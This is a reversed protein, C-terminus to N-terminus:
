MVSYDKLVVNGTTGRRHEAYVLAAIVLFAAEVALSALGMPEAFQEWSAERFGPLGVTRSLLYGGLTGAAVLVGVIWGWDQDRVIGVMGIAAGIASLGFLVGIYREEGYYERMEALHVLGTLALTLLGMMKLLRHSM